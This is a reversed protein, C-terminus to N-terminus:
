GTPPQNRKAIEFVKPNLIFLKPAVRTCCNILDQILVVKATRKTKPVIM